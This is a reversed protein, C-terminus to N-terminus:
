RSYTEVTSHESIEVPFTLVGSSTHDNSIDAIEKKETRRGNRSEMGVGVWAKSWGVAIHSSM